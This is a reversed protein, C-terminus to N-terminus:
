FNRKKARSTRVRVSKGADRDAAHSMQKTPFSRYLWWQRLGVDEPVLIHRLALFLFAGSFFPTPRSKRVVAALDTVVGLQGLIRARLEDPPSLSPDDPEADEGLPLEALQYRVARALPHAREGEVDM